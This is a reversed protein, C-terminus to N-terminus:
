RCTATWALEVRSAAPASASRRAASFVEDISTWDRQPEAHGSELRSLDLLNEVLRSLREGEGVVRSGARAPGGGAPDSLRAGRGAAVMATLPSRLDHSVARLIATKLEDTRRLAASEVVERVLAERDHAAIM